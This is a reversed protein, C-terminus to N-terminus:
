WVFFKAKRLLEKGLMSWYVPILSRAIWNRAIRAAFQLVASGIGLPQQHRHWCAPMIM